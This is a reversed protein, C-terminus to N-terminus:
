IPMYTHNVQTLPPEKLKAQSIHQLTHQRRSLADKNNNFRDVNNLTCASQLETYNTLMCSQVSMVAQADTQLAETNTQM